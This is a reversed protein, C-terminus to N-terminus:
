LITKGELYADVANKVMDKVAEETFFAMHQTLIVNSMSDLIILNENEIKQNQCDHYYIGVEGELVDLAAGGIEHRELAATLAQMDILEGRGTNVIFAGPKMISLTKGNLLHFTQPSAPIHLSILDSNRMLEELSVSIAYKDLKEKRSRNYVLVKCGFGHLRQIVTSGISGAGIIGVTMNWLEKGPKVNLSFNQKRFENQISKMNRTLMLMITYDAVSASSYTINSFKLGYRKVMELDINEYGTSRAVIGTVGLKKWKDLLGDTLFQESTICVGTSGEAAHANSEEAGSEVRKIRVNREKSIRDIFAKEYEEVGYFVMSKQNMDQRMNRNIDQYM